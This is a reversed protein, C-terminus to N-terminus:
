VLENEKKKNLPVSANLFINIKDTFKNHPIQNRECWQICKQIHNRKLSEIKDDKNKNKFINILLDYSELQQQGIVVNSEEIKNLFHYPIQNQILSHVVYNDNLLKDIHKELKALLENQLLMQSNMNKCVVYREGKTIKSISPKIIYVKEYICSFIFLMDVIVKYFANDIKIICTGGNNQCKCIIFLTLIMNKLYKQINTYEVDNFEFLFLDIKTPLSKCLYKERLTNYDFHENIVIDDCDERLMNILYNTSAYNPTIHYIVLKKILPSLLTTMNCIQSIEMLEFFINAEPKVKSVSTFSGPVNTHIFEFPNVIKNIYDINLEDNEDELILLQRYIDNLYHILSYSVYPVIEIDSINPQININFNNKPLIYYNM